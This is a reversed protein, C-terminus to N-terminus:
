LKLDNRVVSFDGTVSFSLEEMRYVIVLVNVRKVLEIVDSRPSLVPTELILCQRLDGVSCLSAFGSHAVRLM